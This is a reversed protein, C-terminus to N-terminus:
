AAQSLSILMSDMSRAEGAPGLRPFVKIGGTAIRFDHGGEIFPVGACRRSRLGATYDVRYHKKAQLSFLGMPLVRSCFTQGLKATQDDLFLVTCGLESLAQKLASYRGEIACLIAPSWAFSLSHISYLGSLGLPGQNKKLLDTSTEALEM